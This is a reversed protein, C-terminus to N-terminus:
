TELYAQTKKKAKPTINTKERSQWMKVVIYVLVVGSAALNIPSGYSFIMEFAYDLGKLIASGSLPSTIAVVIAGTLGIKDIIRM